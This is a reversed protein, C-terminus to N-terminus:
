EEEGHQVSTCIAAAPGAVAAPVPAAAAAAEEGRANALQPPESEHEENEHLSLTGEGVAFCVATLTWKGEMTTRRVM